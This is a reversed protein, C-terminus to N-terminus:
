RALTEFQHAIYRISVHRWSASMRTVPVGRPYTIELERSSIWKLTLVNADIAGFVFDSKARFPETAARLSIAGSVAGAAGGGSIEYWDAIMAGDPSIVSEMMIPDSRLSCSPGIAITVVAFFVGLLLRVVRAQWRYRSGATMQM